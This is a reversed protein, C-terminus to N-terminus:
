QVRQVTVEVVGAGLDAIQEFQERPLDVIRGPVFPGASVVTSNVFVGTAVNTVRIISGIPFDNSAAGNWDYWSALGRVIEKQQQKPFVAVIAHKHRLTGSVTFTSPDDSSSKIRRWRQQASDWYKLVKPTAMDTQPYAMRVQLPKKVFFKNRSTINYRYIDSLPATTSAFHEAQEVPKIKLRVTKTNRIAYKQVGVM